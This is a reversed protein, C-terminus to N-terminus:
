YNHPIAGISKAHKKAEAKSDFVHNSLVGTNIEPGTTITLSFKGGREKYIHAMKMKREQKNERGM